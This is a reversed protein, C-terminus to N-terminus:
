LFFDHKPKRNPKSTAGLTLVSLWVLEEWKDMWGGEKTGENPDKVDEETLKWLDFYGKKLLIPGANQLGSRMKVKDSAKVAANPALEDDQGILDLISLLSLGAYPKSASAGTHEADGLHLAGLRQSAQEVVSSPLAQSIQNVAQAAASRASAVLGGVSSVPALDKMDTPFIRRWNNETLMSMALGASLLRDDAHEAKRFSCSIPEGEAVIAPMNFDLGYGVHILPHLVGGVFRALSDVDKANAEESFVFKELAANVGHKKIYDEFFVLYPWYYAHDGLHKTWNSEDIREVVGGHKGYNEPKKDSSLSKPDVLEPKSNYEFSEDLMDKKEKEYIKDFGSAPLGLALSALVHHSFHNHFGQKNFFIHFRQSCLYTPLSRDAPSAAYTLLKIEVKHNDDLVRRAAEGSAPTFGPFPALVSRSPPKAISSVQVKGDAAAGSSAQNASM